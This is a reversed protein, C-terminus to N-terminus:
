HDPYPDIPEKCFEDNFRYVTGTYSTADWMEGTGLYPDGMKADIMPPRMHGPAAGLTQGPNHYRTLLDMMTVHGHTFWVLRYTEPSGSDQSALHSVQVDSTQGGDPTWTWRMTWASGKELSYNMTAAYAPLGLERRLYAAMVPEDLYVAHVIRAYGFSGHRCAEPFSSNTYLELLIKVPREFPGWGIRQCANFDVITDSGPGENASWNGPPPLPATNGPWTFAAGMGICENWSTFYPSTANALWPDVSPGETPTNNSDSKM